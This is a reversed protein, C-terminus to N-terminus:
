KMSIIKNYLKLYNKSTKSIDFRDKFDKKALKGMCLREDTKSLLKLMANALEEPSKPDVLIGTENDKIINPFPLVNTAIIPKGYSMAELVSIPLGEIISPLVFIDCREILEWKGTEPSIFGTFSVRDSIDLNSVMKKLFTEESGKGAIILKSNPIKDYILSFGKVLDKPRKKPHLRGLFLIVLDNDNINYKTIINETSQKSKVEIGNEIVTIKSIHSGSEVADKIMSKSVVVTSDTCKLIINLLFGAIKNLRLGYRFEKNIQIDAGHCTCVVPINLLKSPLLIILGAPFSPHVNILDPKEKILYFFSKVTNILMSILFGLYRLNIQYFIPFIRVAPPILKKNTVDICVVSIDVKLSLNKSLDYVLNEYGGQIPFNSYIIISIKNRKTM